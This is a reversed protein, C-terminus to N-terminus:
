ILKTFKEDQALQLKYPGYKQVLQLKCLHIQALQLKCLNLQVLQLEYLIATRTAVRVFDWSACLMTIVTKGFVEFSPNTGSEM